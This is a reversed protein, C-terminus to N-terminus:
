PSCMPAGRSSTSMRSRRSVPAAARRPRFLGVEAARPEVPVVAAPSLSATALLSPLPTQM